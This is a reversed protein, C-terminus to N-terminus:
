RLILTEIVPRRKYIELHVQEDNTRRCEGIIKLTLPTRGNGGCVQILPTTEQSNKSEGHEPGTGRKM